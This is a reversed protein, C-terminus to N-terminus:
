KSQLVGRVRMDLRLGRSAEDLAVSVPYKKVQDTDNSSLSTLNIQNAVPLLGIKTVHGVLPQPVGSAHVAVPQGIEIRDIFAEEVDLEVDLKALDYVEAVTQGPVVNEGPKVDLKAVTGAIPVILRSMQGTPFDEVIGVEQGAVVPQGEAVDLAFVRGTAVSTVDAKPATVQGDAEIGAPVVYPWAVYVVAAIAGVVVMGFFMVRRMAIGGGAPPGTYSRTVYGFLAAAALWLSFAYVIGGIYAHGVDFIATFSSDITIQSPFYGPMLKLWGANLVSSFGPAELYGTDLFPLVLVVWTGELERAIVIGV